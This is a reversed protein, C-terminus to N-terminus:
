VEHSAGLCAIGAGLVLEVIVVERVDVRVQEFGQLAMFVGLIAALLDEELDEGAKVGVLDVALRKMMPEEREDAVM